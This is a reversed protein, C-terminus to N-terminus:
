KGKVAITQRYVKGSADTLSIIYVGGNVDFTETYGMSDRRDVAYGQVGYVTCSGGPAGSVTIRGDSQSIRIGSQALTIGSAESKDCCVGLTDAQASYVLAIIRGDADATMKHRVAVTPSNLRALRAGTGDYLDLKCPGTTHWTLSDGAQAEVDFAYIRGAEPKDVYATDSWALKTIDFRVPVNYAFTDTLAESWRGSADGYRIGFVVDDATYATTEDWNVTYDDDIDNPVVGAVEILLDDVKFPNAPTVDVRVAQGSNFWYEYATIMNGAMSPEPKLFYHTMPTSWRGVEDACRLTIHHIGYCLNGAELELQVQGDVTSGSVRAEVAGDIWYEYRNMKNQGYDPGLYLFNHVMTPSWRGVGDGVRLSLQHIGQTLGTSPIELSVLGDKVATEQWKGNDVAYQCATADNDTYDPGLCLFQKCFPNSWRGRADEARFQFRHIGPSLASVDVEQRINGDSTRVEVKRDYGNDIWYEYGAIQGSAPLALLALTPLMKKISTKM